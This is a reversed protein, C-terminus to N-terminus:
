NIDDYKKKILGLGTLVVLWATLLTTKVSTQNKTHGYDTKPLASISNAQNSNDGNQHHQGTGNQNITTEQKQQIQSDKATASSNGSLHTLLEQAGVNSKTIEAQRVVLQALKNDSIKVSTAVQKDDIHLAKAQNVPVATEKKDAKPEVAPTAPVATEKRDTGPAVAPTVPTVAKEKDTNSQTSSNAPVATKEEVELNSTSSQVGSKTNSNTPIVASKDDTGSKTASNVPLTASNSPTVIPEAIAEITKLATKVDGDLIQLTKAHSIAHHAQEFAKQLRDIATEYSQKDANRVAEIATRKKEVAQNVQQNATQIEAYSPQAQNAVPVTLINITKLFKTLQNTLDQSTKAQSVAQHAQLMAGRLQNMTAQYASVDPNLVQEIEAQKKAGAWDIQQQAAQIVEQNPQEQNAEPLTITNIAKVFKTLQETLDQGTKAQDVAQHAQDMAERLQNITAQYISLDPNSVQDIEAQKKAGAWDIARHAQTREERKPTLTSPEPVMAFDDLTEAQVQDVDANTNADNIRKNAAAMLQDIREVQQHLSVPDVNELANFRQKLEDGATQIVGKARNAEDIDVPQFSRMMDPQGVAEIADIAEQEITLLSANVTAEDLKQYARQVIQDIAAEQKALSETDVGPEKEFIEKQEIAKQQVEGKAKQRDADTPQRFIWQIQPSQVAQIAERIKIVATKLQGHNKVLSITVLGEKVVKNVAQQQQALEDPDVGTIKGFDQIRNQGASTVDQIAAQMEEKNVVQDQWNQKPQAVQNIDQLGKNVLEHVDHITEAQDILAFYHKVVGTLLTKQELLSAQNVGDLAEFRGIKEKAVVSLTQQGDVKQDATAQRYEPALSPKAVAQVDALSQKIASDLEHHVTAKKISHHGTQLVYALQALQNELSAQDVHNIVLFTAKKAQGATSLQQEAQTKEQDTVAQYAFILVPDAVLDIQAVAQKQVATLDQNLKVQALAEQAQKLIWDIQQQQQKLSELDVHTMKSFQEQKAHGYQTLMTEIGIKDALTVPRYALQVEPDTVQNLGSLGAQLATQLQGQNEAASLIAIATKRAAKLAAVQTKLSQDDVHKIDSFHEQKKLFAQNLIELAQNRDDQTVSRFQTQVVPEVVDQITQLGAVLAQNLDQKTKANAILDHAQTLAQNVAQKQQSLSEPDAHTVADFHGKKLNVQRALLDDVASKEDQSVLRFLPLISPQSISTVAQEAQTVSQNLDGKTATRDIAEQGQALAQNLLQLQQALSAQDVHSIQRFSEERKAVVQSLRDKAVKKDAITAPKLEELIVPAAIQRIATLGQQCATVLEGDTQAQDVAQSATDAAQDVLLQQKALSEPDVGVLSAFKQKQAESAAKLQEKADAQNNAEVQRYGIEKIPDAVQDIQTLADALSQRLDKKIKAALLLQQGNVRTKEILGSQLSLSVSDVHDITAFTAKKDNAAQNLTVLAQNQDAKTIPQYDVELTPGVIKAISDFGAQVARKLEGQVAAQAVGQQAQTIAQQVAKVQQQISKKEGHEVALIAQKKAEGAHNIAQRALYRDMDTVPQYDKQISPAEIRQIRDLNDAVANRFAGAAKAKQLEQLGTALVSDVVSQQARLSEQDVHSVAAFDAKKAEGANRLTHEGLHREEATVPQYESLIKPAAVLNIAQVGKDYAVQIDKQIMSQNLEITTSKKILDLLQLQKSLSIPDVHLIAAFQKRKASLIDLLNGYAVNVDHVTAEQYAFEVVPKAVARIKILAQDSVKALEGKTKAQNIAKTGAKLAKELISLQQALSQQDAHAVKQFLDRQDQAAQELFKISLTKEDVTPEKLMEQITPNEVARIAQSTKQFSKEFERNTEARNLKEIGNSIILNLKAQQNALSMPDVGIIQNFSDSKEQGIQKLIAVARDIDHQSVPQYAILQTPNAVANIDKVVKVLSSNLDGNTKAQQLVTTAKQVLQNVLGEQQNLSDPEVHEVQKFQQKKQEGAAMVRDIAQKRDTASVPQFEKILQPKAVGEVLAFARDLAQRLDQKTKAIRIAAVGQKVAEDVLQEQGILSAPEVHAIKQFREKTSRGREEFAAVAVKIEDLKVPQYNTQLDPNAVDNIAHLGDALVRALEVVTKSQKIRKQYFVVEHDVAKEQKHLSEQDVHAIKAFKQKKEQGAQAVAVQAEDKEVKGLFTTRLGEIVGGLVRRASEVETALGVDNKGTQATAEVQDLLTQKQEKSLEAANNIAVKTRLAERDIQQYALDRNANLIAPALQHNKTAQNQIALLQDLQEKQVLRIGNTTQSAELKRNSESVVAQIQQGYNTIMQDLLKPQLHRILSFLYEGQKEITAFASHRQSDLPSQLTQNEQFVTLKTPRLPVVQGNALTMEGNYYVTFPRNYIAFDERSNKQGAPDVSRELRLSRVNQSPHFGQGDLLVQHDFYDIVRDFRSAQDYFNQGNALKVIRHDLDQGPLVRDQHDVEAWEESHGAVEKTNLVKEQDFLSIYARWTPVKSVPLPHVTKQDARKLVVDRGLDGNEGYDHSSRSLMDNSDMLNLSLFAQGYQQPPLQYRTLVKYPSDDAYVKLDALREPHQGDANYYKQMEQSSMNGQYRSLDFNLYGYAGGKINGGWSLAEMFFKTLIIKAETVVGSYRNLEDGRVLLYLAAPDDQNNVKTAKPYITIPYFPSDSNKFSLNTGYKQNLQDVVRGLVADVLSGVNGSIPLGLGQSLIQSLGPVAEILRDIGLTVNFNMEAAFRTSDLNLTKVFENPDVGHPVAVRLYIGYQGQDYNNTLKDNVMGISLVNAVSSLTAQFMKYYSEPNLPANNSSYIGATLPMGGGLVLTNQSPFYSTKTGKQNEGLIGKFQDMIKQTFSEDVMLRMQSVNSYDNKTGILGLLPKDPEGFIMQGPKAIHRQDSDLVADGSGNVNPESIQLSKVLKEYADTTQEYLSPLPQRALDTEGPNKSQGGKDAPKQEQEQKPQSGEKDPGKQKDGSDKPNEPVVVVTGLRQHRREPRPSDVTFDDDAENERKDNDEIDVDIGFDAQDLNMRASLQGDNARVNETRQVQAAHGSIQQDGDVLTLGGSVLVSSAVLWARRSQYITYKKRINTDM